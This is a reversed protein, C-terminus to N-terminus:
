VEGLEAKLQALQEHKLELKRAKEYELLAAQSAIRAEKALRREELYEDLVTQNYLLEVPFEFSHNDVFEDYYDREEGYFNVMGKHVGTFELYSIRSISDVKDIKQLVQEAAIELEESEKVAREVFKKTLM